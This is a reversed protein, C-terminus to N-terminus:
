IDSVASARSNTINFIEAPTYIRTENLLQKSNSYLMSSSLAYSPFVKLVTNLMDGLEETQKVTRLIFVSSSFISGIILHAFVTCNQATSEREFIFSTAYTFPVIAFPYELLVAWADPFDMEFLHILLLVTGSVM